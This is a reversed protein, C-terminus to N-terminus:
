ITVNQYLGGTYCLGGNGSIYSMNIGLNNQIVFSDIAPNCTSSFASCSGFELCLNGANSIYATSNDTSNGVIFSGDPAVCNSSAFCSGSIVINGLDGLWAVTSNTSNLILFKNTDNVSYSNLNISFDATENWSSNYNGDTAMIRLKYSSLNRLNTINWLYNSINYNISLNTISIKGAHDSHIKLPIICYGESDATCNILADNLEPAFNYTTESSNYYEPYHWVLSNNVYLSVNKTYNREIVIQSSQVSGSNLYNDISYYRLYSTGPNSVQIQSSYTTTPICNNTTDICYRIFACGSVHQDSPGSDTCSLSVNVNNLSTSGFSYSSGGPPSTASASTGPSTTDTSIYTILLYPPSSELLGDFDVNCDVGSCQENTSYVGVVFENDPLSDLNDTIESIATSGLNRTYFGEEGNDLGIISNLSNGNAIASYVAQLESQDDPTLDYNEGDIKKLYIDVQSCGSGSEDIDHVQVVLDVNTISYINTLTPLIDADFEIWGRSNQGNGSPPFDDSGISDLIDDDYPEYDNINCKKEIVKTDGSGIVSSLSITPDIYSLDTGNFEVYSENAIVGLGQELVAQSFDIKQESCFLTYNSYTTNVFCSVGESIIDYGFKSPQFNTDNTMYHAYYYGAVGSYVTTTLNLQNLQENNKDILYEKSGSQNKTYFKLLVSKNNWSLSMNYKNTSLNTVEQYPRYIDSQNLINLERPYLFILSENSTTNKYITASETRNIVELGYEIEALAFSSFLSLIFFIGLFKLLNKYM